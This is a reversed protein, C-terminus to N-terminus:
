EWIMVEKLKESSVVLTEGDKKFVGDVYPIDYNRGEKEIVFIDCAGYNQIDMIQGVLEGKDDYLVLGILDDVLFDEEDKANEILEKEVKILQNRYAEAENRTKIEDFKIYLFNQRYSLHEIKMTKNGVQCTKLSNFVALVNTLPLAKVEGKIGQPKVIQAIEIM